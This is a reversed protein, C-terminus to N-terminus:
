STLGVMPRRALWFKDDGVVLVGRGDWRETLERSEIYDRTVTVLLQRDGLDVLYNAAYKEVSDVARLFDFPMWTEIAWALPSRKVTRTLEDIALADPYRAQVALTRQRRKPQYTQLDVPERLVAGSIPEDGAVLYDVSIDFLAALAKLNDIDPMGSDTEWKTIAQRSVHVRKALENQTMGAKQRAARIKEGLTM